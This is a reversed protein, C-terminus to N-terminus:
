FFFLPTWFLSGLAMGTAAGAMMGLAMDGGRYRNYYPDSVYVIQNNPYHVIQSGPTGRVLYARPQGHPVPGDAHVVIQGSDPIILDQGAGYSQYVINSNPPVSRSRPPGLDKAQELAICWAEMDDPSDACLVLTEKKLVVEFLCTTSRHSPPTYSSVFQARRIALCDKSIYYVEEAVHKDPSDFFRMMGNKYLVFWSSKWRKLISSQRYLWSSRAIEFAM